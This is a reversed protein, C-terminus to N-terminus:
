KIKNLIEEIFCTGCPRYMSAKKACFESHTFFYSNIIRKVREREEARAQALLDEMKLAEEQSQAMPYKFHEKICARHFPASCDACVYARDEASAFVRVQGGCGGQFIKEGTESTMGCAVAVNEMFEKQGDERAETAIQSLSTRLFDETTLETEPLRKFGEMIKEVMEEIRQSISPESFTKLVHDDGCREHPRCVCCRAKGGEDRLRNNCCWHTGESEHEKKGEDSTPSKAAIGAENGRSWEESLEKTAFYRFNANVTNAGNKGADYGARYAESKEEKPSKPNNIM